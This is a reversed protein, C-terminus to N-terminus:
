SESQFKQHDTLGPHRNLLAQGLVVELEADRALHQLSLRLEAAIDPDNATSSALVLATLEPLRDNASRSQELALAVLKAKSGFVRYLSGRGIGTHRVIDDIGVADFGRELILEAVGRIVEDDNFNRPRAM